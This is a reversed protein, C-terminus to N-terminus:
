GDFLAALLLYERKDLARQASVRYFTILLLCKLRSMSTIPIYLYGGADTPM